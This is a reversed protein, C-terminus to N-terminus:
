YCMLIISKGTSKSLSFSDEKSDLYDFEADIKFGEDTIEKKTYGYKKKLHAGGVFLFVEFDKEKKMMSILPSLIGFEARTTTFFAVRKMDNIIKTIM